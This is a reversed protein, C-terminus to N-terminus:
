KQLHLRQRRQFHLSSLKLHQQLQTTWQEPKYKKFTLLANIGYLSVILPPVFCGILSQLVRRVTYQAVMFNIKHGNDKVCPYLKYSVYLLLCLCM